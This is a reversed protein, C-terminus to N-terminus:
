EDFLLETEHKLSKPRHMLKLEEALSCQKIQNPEIRSDMQGAGHGLRSHFMNVPRAKVFVASNPYNTRAAKPHPIALIPSFRLSM